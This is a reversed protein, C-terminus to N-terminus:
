RSCKQAQVFYWGPEEEAAVSAAGLGSLTAALGAAPPLRDRAVPGELSGHFTNLEASSMMHGICLAGGPRLVSLFGALASAQDELHPLIGFCLVLDFVESRLPARAVDACLRHIRRGPFKLANQKLMSEAFDTEVIVEALPLAALISPLLIGTGCGVDLIRRPMAVAAKEVFRRVKEPAEPPSPLGDWNPAIRDFYQRKSEAPM